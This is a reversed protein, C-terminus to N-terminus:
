AAGGEITYIIHDGGEHAVVKDSGDFWAAARKRGAPAESRYSKVVHRLYSVARAKTEFEAITYGRGHAPSRRKVHYKM